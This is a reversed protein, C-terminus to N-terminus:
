AIRDGNKDYKWRRHSWLWYQPQQLILRELMRLHRDTLEYPELSIPQETVIELEIEYYGRKQKLIQVYVVPLDYKRAYKEAGMAVATQQNLFETWYINKKPDWAPVQDGIFALGVPRPHDLEYYFPVAPIPILQSGFRSRSTTIKEKIFKNKIDSFISSIQHKQQSPFGLATIEWNGYHSGVIVVNKEKDFFQDLVEPNRIRCRRVAEAESISFWKVSEVILDCLHRYFLKTTTARWEPAAEPFARALNREVVSRRYKLVYYFLYYLGTSFLHLVRLPLYSLPKIIFYYGFQSM